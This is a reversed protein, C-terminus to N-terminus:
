PFVFISMEVIDLRLLHNQIHSFSLTEAALSIYERCSIENHFWSIWPIHERSLDFEKFYPIYRIRMGLFHTFVQFSFKMTM